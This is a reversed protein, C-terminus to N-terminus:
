GGCVPIMLWFMPGGGSSFWPIAMRECYSILKALEARTNVEVFLDAPGGIRFSTNGALPEDYRFREPKVEAILAERWDKSKM